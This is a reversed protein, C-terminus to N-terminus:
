GLTGSTSGIELIKTEPSQFQTHGPASIHKKSFDLCKHVRYGRFGVKCSCSYKLEQGCNHGAFNSICDHIIDRNQVREQSKTPIRFEQDM